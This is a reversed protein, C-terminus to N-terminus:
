AALEVPIYADHKAYHVIAQCAEDQSPIRGDRWASWVQLVEKAISAELLYRMGPPPEEEDEDVLKIPSSANVESGEAVFVVLEDSIDDISDVLM